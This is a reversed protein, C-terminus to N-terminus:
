VSRVGVRGMSDFQFSKEGFGFLGKTKPIVDGYSFEIFLFM